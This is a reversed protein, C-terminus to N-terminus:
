VKELRFKIRFIHNNDSFGTLFNNKVVGEKSELGAYCHVVM